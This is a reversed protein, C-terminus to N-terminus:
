YVLVQATILFIRFRGKRLGRKIQVVPIMNCVCPANRMEEKPNNNIGAMSSKVGAPTNPRRSGSTLYLARQIQPSANAQKSKNADM